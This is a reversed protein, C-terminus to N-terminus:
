DDREGFGWDVAIPFRPVGDPTRMFYRITAWDPKAQAKWMARLKDKSGRIGSKFERGDHDELLLHKVCGKWNGNGELIAKVKFEESIFEKRKLLFKTRKNQYPANLRVMQGEYGNEVYEGNLDDLEWMKTVILTEVFRICGDEEFYDPLLLMESQRDVFPSQDGEEALVDYIHYQILRAAEALEEPTPTQKRVASTITNFDERLEHNYLEGDLIDRPYKAFFPKLAEWIHPVSTIPKGTRTWLGDARAICRIGDLKPQSFVAVMGISTEVQVKYDNYDHALMPKFKDFTDVNDLNLFYGRALKKSEDAMAEALAQADPSLENVKGVNKAETITWGSTVKQGDQLGATTRWGWQTGDTGIEYFWVRVKGKTDRKYITTGTDVVQM